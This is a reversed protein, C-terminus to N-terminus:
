QAAGEDAFAVSFNRNIVIDALSRHKSIIRDEIKLIQESFEDVVERGRERRDELTDHYDRDIFIRHDVNDLLSTYTGEAIVVEFPSLDVMESTICDEAFIVLPKELLVTPKDKFAKMHQDLLKLDVEQTGVWEIDDVRHNHNTRPPYFFYDDQQFVLTRHGAEDFLRALADAVESKGSGSQGAVAITMRQKMNGGLRDFIAQAAKQHKPKINLRDGIM